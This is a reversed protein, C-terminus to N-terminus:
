INFYFFIEYLLFNSKSCSQSFYKLYNLFFYFIEKLSKYYLLIKYIFKEKM